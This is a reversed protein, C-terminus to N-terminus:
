ESAGVTQHAAVWLDMAHAMDFEHGNPCAFEFLQRTGDDGLATLSVTGPTGCEPCTVTVSMTVAM